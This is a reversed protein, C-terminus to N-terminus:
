VKLHDRARRVLDEYTKVILAADGNLRDAVEEYRERDKYRWEDPIKTIGVPGLPFTNLSLYTLFGHGTAILTARLEELRKDHFRHAENDWNHLFNDLSQLHASDIPARMDRDRLYIMQPNFPMQAILAAYM